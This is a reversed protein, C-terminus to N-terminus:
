GLRRVVRRREPFHRSNPLYGNQSNFSHFAVGIQRLNSLCQARRAQTRSRMIAPLVLASLITVVVIVVILELVTVASRENFRPERNTVSMALKPLM